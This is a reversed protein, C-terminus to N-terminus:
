GPWMALGLAAYAMVIGAAAIIGSAVAASVLASYHRRAPVSTETQSAPRIGITPIGTRQDRTAQNKM